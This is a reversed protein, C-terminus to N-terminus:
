FDRIEALRYLEELVAIAEDRIASGLYNFLEGLKRECIWKLFPIKYVPGNNRQLVNMVTYILSEYDHRPFLSTQGRTSEVERSCFMGTYGNSFAGVPVCREFDILTPHFDENIVINTPKLDNHIWGCSHMHAVIRIVDRISRIVNGFSNRNHVAFQRFTRRGCYTSLIASGRVEGCLERGEILVAPILLNEVDHLLQPVGSVRKEEFNQLMFLEQEYLHKSSGVWFKLIYEHTGEKVLFIYRTINKGSPRVPTIPSLAFFCVSSNAELPSTPLLPEPHAPPHVASRAVRSLRPRVIDAWSHLGASRLYEVLSVWQPSLECDLMAFTFKQCFAMLLDYGRLNGYCEDREFLKIGGTPWHWMRHSSLDAQSFRVFMIGTADAIACFYFPFQIHQHRAFLTGLAKLGDRTLGLQSTDGDVRFANLKFEVVGCVTSWTLGISPRNYYLVADPKHSSILSDLPSVTLAAMKLPPNRLLANSHFVFAEAYENETRSARCRLATAALDNTLYETWDRWFDEPVSGLLTSFALQPTAAFFREPSTAFHNAADLIM